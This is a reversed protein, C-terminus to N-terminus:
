RVLQAFSPGDFISGKEGLYASPYRRPVSLWQATMAAHSVCRFM